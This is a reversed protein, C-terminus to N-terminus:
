AAQKAAMAYFSDGRAAMDRLLQPPAFREGHAQALRDLTAVVNAIGVTDMHSFPGGTFPAFGWGFIAGLDGDQPTELVGEAFCRACEVLQRYLLREKVEAASPQDAALGGAVTAALEPWLHKKGGEPYVYFGKANKRGQRGLEHMKTIVGDAPGPKYADGLDAKTQQGVKYSLDLGVEDNVALPGVPMGMQKGVNEILAPVTGEGLLALGEQVYTGFCRSTYFGRSDNVVIPTKRIAAVYDLAKAIADPGTEKGVIIEVLPMKEVPSFFHIGIFNAPKSWAKALGTIPLTSTNSGFIVDPGVVAETAKTVDAKIERTEFVAEIILDCGALDAYDSTPKIRDLIVQAKAPDMRKKALRDATYQKGKEAAALDRDLLVVEIGAQATVMAVGAGMLGAGLMGIKKTPKPAIGKPRRAGKEAAQKSVFLSRIMNGAQLDAVVKAFYKSEIRIATDMPVQTGEYVASLIAKPANMNDGANVHTMATGGVFIQAFNPNLATAPGGPMKFNKTDWPQVGGNPNAKVWAKATAIIQDAPVVAQAVGFGLAEQPSMNKGQLLYMLAPQIGMLRPLRQTGGAGPFLGVMIEPLGLTIKPNDAIVRYHCALIFELGGGLALGNVAAAVPKGCTELDRLLKNLGFVGDFLMAMRSKGEPPKAGGFMAGMGKLDAGAMFGSAKGSTLVAGKITEDTKLREIAAALDAQVEPTIVNMSQGPVDITLLLIGDADLETHIATTM